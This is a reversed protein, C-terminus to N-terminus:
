PYTPTREGRMEQYGMYDEEDMVGDVGVIKRKEELVVKLKAKTKNDGAYFIQMVDKALVFPDDRYTTKTLDITTFGERDITIEKLRIWQCCFLCAKM